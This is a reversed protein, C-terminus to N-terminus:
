SERRRIRQIRKFRERHLWTAISPSFAGALSAPISFLQGTIALPNERRTISRVSVLKKRFVVASLICVKVYRYQDCLIVIHNISESLARRASLLNDLTTLSYEDLIVSGEHLWSASHELMLRAESIDTDSGTAGGSFLVTRPELVSIISMATDLYGRLNSDLRTGYGCVLVAPHSDIIRAFPVIM